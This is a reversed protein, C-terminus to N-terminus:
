EKAGQTAGLCGPVARAFAELKRNLIEIDAQLVTWEVYLEDTRRELEAVADAARGLRDTLADLTLPKMASGVEACTRRDRREMHTPALDLPKM